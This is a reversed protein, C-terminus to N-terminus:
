WRCCRGKQFLTARHISQSGVIIICESAWSIVAAAVHRTGFGSPMAIKHELTSILTGASEIVGDERIVFAGDITSFEKVTEDMFPNLINREKEEYSFFPNLVLSKSIEKIKEVDDIVFLCGVPKGERGEVSIELAISLIRELVEPKINQMLFQTESTFIPFFEQKIDVTFVANLTRNQLNSAVCCVKEDGRILSRSLGIIIAIRCEYLWHTSNSSL